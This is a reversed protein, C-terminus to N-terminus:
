VVRASTAESPSGRPSPSAVAGRACRPGSPRSSRRAVANRPEPPVSVLAHAVRARCPAPARALASRRSVCGGANQHRLAQALEENRIVAAPRRRRGAPQAILRVLVGLVAAPVSSLRYEFYSAGSVGIVRMRFWLGPWVQGRVM